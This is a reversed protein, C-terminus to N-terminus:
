LGGKVVENHYKNINSNNCMNISPQDLMKYFNKWFLRLKSKENVGSDNAFARRGVKSDFSINGVITIFARTQLLVYLRM